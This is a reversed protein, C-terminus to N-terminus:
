RTCTIPLFTLPFSVVLIVLLYTPTLMVNSDKPIHCRKARTLVSTESSRITEMMLIIQILMIPIVNATVITIASAIREESVDTRIVVVSHLM